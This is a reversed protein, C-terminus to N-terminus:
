NVPFFLILFRSFFCFFSSFLQERISSHQLLMHLFFFFITFSLYFLITITFFSFITLSLFHQIFSIMRHFRYFFVSRVLHQRNPQQTFISLFISTSFFSTHFIKEDDYFLTLNFYAIEQMSYHFVSRKKESETQFLITSEM